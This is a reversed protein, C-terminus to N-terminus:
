PAVEKGSLRVYTEWCPCSGGASLRPDSWIGWEWSLGCLHDEVGPRCACPPYPLQPSFIAPSCPLPRRPLKLWMEFTHSHGPFQHTQQAYAWAGCDQILALTFSQKLPSMKGTPGLQALHGQSQGELSVPRESTSLFWMVYASEPTRHSHSTSPAPLQAVWPGQDRSLFCCRRECFSQHWWISCIGRCSSCLPLNWDLLLALHCLPIAFSSPSGVQGLTTWMQCWCMGVQACKHSLPKALM